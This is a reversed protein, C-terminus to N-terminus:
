GTGHFVQRERPIGLAQELEAALAGSPGCSLEASWPVPIGDANPAVTVSAQCELGLEAAKDSIYAETERAILEALTKDNEAQLEQRRQEVAASRDEYDLRLEGAGLATLPRTLVVLLILGGVLSTIKRLSGEPALREALSLLVATTLVATLWSRLAAMM